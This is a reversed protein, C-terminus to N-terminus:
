DLIHQWVQKNKILRIMRESVLYKKSLARQTAQTRFITRVEKPTLKGYKKRVRKAPERPLIGRLEFSMKVNEQATICLVNDARYPGSDGKRAMVYQGLKRGRKVPWDPGLNAEWWSCWEEFTFNFEIGRTKAKHRQKTFSTRILEM